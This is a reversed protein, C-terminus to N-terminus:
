FKSPNSLYICKEEEEGFKLHKFYPKYFIYRPPDVTENWTAISCQLFTASFAIECETGWVYEKNTHNKNLYENIDKIGISKWKDQVNELTVFKFLLKKFVSWQDESGTIAFVIARYLCNGDGVVHHLTIPPGSIVEEKYNSLYVLQLQLVQCRIM